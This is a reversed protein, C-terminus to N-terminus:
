FHKKTLRQDYTFDALLENYPQGSMIRNQIRYFLLIKDAFDSFYSHCLIIQTLEDLYFVEKLFRLDNTNSIDMSQIAAQLMQEFTKLTLRFTGTKSIEWIISTRIWYWYTETLADEYPQSLSLRLWFEIEDHSLYRLMAQATLNFMNDVGSIILSWQQQTYAQLWTGINCLYQETSLGNAEFYHRFQIFVPMSITPASCKVMYQYLPGMPAHPHIHHWVEEFQSETLNYIKEAKEIIVFGDVITSIQAKNFRSLAVFKRFSTHSNICYQVEKWTNFTQSVAKELQRIFDLALHAKESFPDTIKQYQSTQHVIHLQQLCTM